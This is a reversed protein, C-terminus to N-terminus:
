RDRKLPLNATKTDGLYDSISGNRVARRVRNTLNNIENVGRKDKESIIIDQVIMTLNVHPLTELLTMHGGLKRENEMKKAIKDFIRDEIASLRRRRRANAYRGREGGNSSRQGSRANKLGKDRLIAEANHNGAQWAATLIRRGFERYEEPLRAICKEAAALYNLAVRAFGGASPPATECEGLIAELTQRMSTFQDTGQVDRPLRKKIYRPRGNITIEYGTAFGMADMHFEEHVEDNSIGSAELPAKTAVPQVSRFSSKSM